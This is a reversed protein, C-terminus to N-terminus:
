SYRVAVSTSCWKSSIGYYWRCVYSISTRGDSHLLGNQNYMEFLEMTNYKSKKVYIYSDRGFENNTGVLKEYEGFRFDFKLNMTNIEFSCPTIIYRAHIRYGNYKQGHKNYMVHRSGVWWYVLNMFMAPVVVTQPKDNLKHVIPHFWCDGTFSGGSIMRCPTLNTYGHLDILKKLQEKSLDSLCPIGYICEPLEPLKPIDFPRSVAESM